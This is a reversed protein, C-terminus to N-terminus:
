GKAEAALSQELLAMDEEAMPAEEPAAEPPRQGEPLFKALRQRILQAAVDHMPKLLQERKM